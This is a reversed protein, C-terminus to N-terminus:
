NIRESADMDIPESEPVSDAVPSDAATTDTPVVQRASRRAAVFAIVACAVTWAFALLAVPTVASADLVLTNNTGALAVIDVTLLVLVAVSPVLGIACWIKPGNLDLHAM